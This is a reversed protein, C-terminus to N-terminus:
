ILRKNVKQDPLVKDIKHGLSKSITVDGSINLFQAELFTSFDSDEAIVFKAISLICLLGFKKMEFHNRISSVYNRQGQNTIM